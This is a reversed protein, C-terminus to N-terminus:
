KQPPPAARVHVEKLQREDVEGPAGTM